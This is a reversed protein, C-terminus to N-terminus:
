NGRSKQVRKPCRFNVSDMRLVEIIWYCDKVICRDVKTTRGRIARRGVAIRAEGSLLLACWSRMVMSVVDEGCLLRVAEQPLM